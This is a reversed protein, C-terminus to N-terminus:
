FDNESEESELIVLGTADTGILAALSAGYLTNPFRRNPFEAGLRDYLMRTQDSSGPRHQVIMADDLEEFEIAFEVLREVAQVRTRVKEMPRLRGEEVTLVPKLNLMMGLISHSPSMIRNQMLFDTSEVYYVSYTREIAGRLVRVVEDFPEGSALTKAALRVLMGQGASITRSDVVEIRCHGMIQQAADRASQWGPLIERSCHISLIADADRSIREYVALYDEQSPVRILPAYPQHSFMRLADEASLDVGERYSKGQVIITNPVVTVNAPLQGHACSDTVIHINM